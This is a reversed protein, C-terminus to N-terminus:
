KIVEQILGRKILDPIEKEEVPVIDEIEYIKSKHMLRTLSYYYKGPKLTELTKQIKTKPIILRKLLGEKNLENLVDKDNNDFKSGKKYHVGKYRFDNVCVIDGEKAKLQSVPTIASSKDLKKDSSLDDVIEKKNGSSTTNLNEKSNETTKEM